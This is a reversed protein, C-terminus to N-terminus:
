PFRSEIRSGPNKRIFPQLKKKVVESKRGVEVRAARAVVVGAVITHINKTESMTKLCSGPSMESNQHRFFKGHINKTWGFVHSMSVDFDIEIHIKTDTFIADLM